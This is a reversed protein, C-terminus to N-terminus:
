FFFIWFIFPFVKSAAQEEEESDGIVMIPEDTYKAKIQQFCSVKGQNNKNKINLIQIKKKIFFFPVIM